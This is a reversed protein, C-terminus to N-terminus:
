HSFSFVWMLGSGWMGLLNIVLILIESFKLQKLTFQGGSTLLMLSMGTRIYYYLTVVSMVVALLSIYIAGGAVSNSLVGWKPFFGLMPPLGGLSMFAGSILFFSSISVSSIQSMYFWQRESLVWILTLVMLCYSLFYSLWIGAKGSMSLCLWGFHSISSFALLKRLSMENIGGLAGVVVSSIIVLAFITSMSGSNLYWLLALPVLKQLSFLVGVAMWSMGSVVMPMWGHLPAGGSKLVLSLVLVSILSVSTSSFIVGSGLMVFSGCAQVLFYKLGSEVSASSSSMVILPIFSLLNLELGVWVGFWSSSLFALMMGMILTMIFLIVKSTMFM